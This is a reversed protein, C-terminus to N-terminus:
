KIVDGLRELNRELKNWSLDLLLNKPMFKMFDGLYKLNM